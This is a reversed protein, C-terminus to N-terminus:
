ILYNFYYDCDNSFLLLSTSFSFIVLYFNFYVIRYDDILFLGVMLKFGNLGLVTNDVGLDALSYIAVGVGFFGV